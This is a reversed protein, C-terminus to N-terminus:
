ALRKGPLAEDDLNCRIGEIMNELLGAIQVRTNVEKDYAEQKGPDFSAGFYTSGGGLEIFTATTLLTPHSFKSYFDRAERLIRLGDHELSLKKHNKIVDRVACDTSYRGSAYRDLFGLRPNSALLAM